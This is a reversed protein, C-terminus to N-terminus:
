YDIKGAHLAESQALTCARTLSGEGSTLKDIAGHPGDLHRRGAKDTVIKFELRVGTAEDSIWVHGAENLEVRLENM